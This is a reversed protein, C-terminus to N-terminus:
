RRRRASLRCRYQPTGSLIAAKLKLYVNTSAASLLVRHNAITLYVDSSATPVLTEIWNSGYTLGTTSNGSTVSIGISFSNTSSGNPTVSLTGTLDWDGATLNLSTADGWVDTLPFSTVSTVLAEQYEGIYLSPASLGTSDGYRDGTIFRHGLSIEAPVAAWTGATTQTSSMRALVRIPVGSRSTTSYISTASDAAGAGGETSTTVISGDDFLKTSVALEITGANNLAYVYFFTAVTSLHGLTSGSSIVLSTAATATVVTYTGTAATASRFAVSVASGGSPNSGAADKLAITLANSGVTATFSYNKADTPSDQAGSPTAWTLVGSGDTQLFQSSSGDDTPYTLTYNGSLTPAQITITNTGAGPDELKISTKFLAADTFSKNTFADTTAKGVLTDSADPLTYTRTTATTIGSAQFKAQKTTDGDDQITFNSDKVTVVNTNDFTKNTPSQVAALLLLTDSVDPVTLTRTTATTVGSVEFKVAKTNDGNDVITTSNDVLKKNSLTVTNSPTVTSGAGTLPGFVKWDTDSTNYVLLVAARNENLVLTASGKITEAGNPTITINNTGADGTGDIVIYYQGAIGAPLIVAVAAPVTLQTIIMCDTGAVVTVPSTTTKRIAIKQAFISQAGNGLAVLFNTLNQWNKEGATNPVPYVSGGVLPWTVNQSM